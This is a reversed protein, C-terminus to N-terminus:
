FIFNVSAALMNWDETGSGAAVGTGAAPDYTKVPMAYGRNINDELRVSVSSNIKYNLGATTTKQYYSPDSKRAQDTTIYDYRMFPTWKEGLTYGAQIYSTSSSIGFEQTRAAEAKVDWNNNTYDVSLVSSKDRTTIGSLIEEENGGFAAAVFRLGEVPTRYIARGGLLRGFKIQVAQEPSLIQGAYIDWIVSGSGAAHKYTAALGRLSEYRMESEQYLFPMLTSQQLFHADVLEGYLGYPFKILGARGSLESTFQYDVYSWELRTNTATSFLQMWIKTNDDVKASLVLALQNFDWSGHGDAGLYTNHNSQLYSQHGYGHRALTDDAGVAHATTQVAVVLLGMGIVRSLRQKCLKTM